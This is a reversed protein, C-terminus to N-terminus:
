KDSMIRIYLEVIQEAIQNDDLGQQEVKERGNSRSNECVVSVLSQSLKEVDYDCVAGPHTGALRQCVLLTASRNTM